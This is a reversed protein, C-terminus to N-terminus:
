VWVRVKSNRKSRERGKDGGSSSGGEGESCSYSDDNGMGHQGEVSLMAVLM